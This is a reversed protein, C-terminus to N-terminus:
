NEGHKEEDAKQDSVAENQNTSEKQHESRENQKTEPVTKKVWEEEQSDEQTIKKRNTRRKQKQVTGSNENKRVKGDRNKKKHAAKTQDDEESSHEQSDAEPASLASKFKWLSVVNSNWQVYVNNLLTWIKTKRDNVELLVDKLFEGNIKLTYAITLSHNKGKKQVQFLYLSKSTKSIAPLFSEHGAQVFNSAFM